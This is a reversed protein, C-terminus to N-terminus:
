NDLNSLIFALVRIFIRLCAERWKDKMEIYQFNWASLNSIWSIDKNLVNIFFKSNECESYALKTEFWTFKVHKIDIFSAYLSTYLPTYYMYRVKLPMYYDGIYRSGVLVARVEQQRDNFVNTQKIFINRHYHALMIRKTQYVCLNIKFISAENRM